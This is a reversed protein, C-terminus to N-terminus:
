DEFCKKMKEHHEKELEKAKGADHNEGQSQGGTKKGGYRCATCLHTSDENTRALFIGRLSLYPGKFFNVTVVNQSVTLIKLSVFFFPKATRVCRDSIGKM